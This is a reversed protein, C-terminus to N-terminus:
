HVVFPIRQWEAQWVGDYLVDMLVNLHGAPDSELDVVAGRQVSTLAEGHWYGLVTGSEDLRVVLPQGALEGGAYLSGDSARALAAFSAGLLDNQPMWTGSGAFGSDVVGAPTLRTLSVDTLALSAGSPLLILDVPMGSLSVPTFDNASHFLVTDDPIDNAMVLQNGTTRIDVVKRIQAESYTGPISVNAPPIPNAEFGSNWGVLRVQGPSATGTDTQAAWNLTGYQSVSLQQLDSGNSSQIGSFSAVSATNSALLDTMRFSEITLDAPVQVGDGFGITGVLLEGTESLHLDRVDAIGVISLAGVEEGVQLQQGDAGFGSRNVGSVDLGWTVSRPPDMGAGPTWNTLLANSNQSVTLSRAYDGETSGIWANSVSDDPAGNIGLASVTVGYLPNDSIVRLQGSAWAIGAFDNVPGVPWPAPAYGFNGWSTDLQGTDDLRVISAGYLTGPTNLAVYVDGTGPDRALLSLKESDSQNSVPSSYGAFSVSGNNGWSADVSGTYTVADIQVPAGGGDAESYILLRTGDNIIALADRNSGSLYAGMSGFGTDAGAGNSDYASLSYTTSDNHLLYVGGGPRALLDMRGSTPLEQTTQWTGGAYEYLDRGFQSQDAVLFIHGNDDEALALPPGYAPSPVPETGYSSGFATDLDGNTDLRGVVPYGFDDGTFLVQGGPQELLQYVTADPLSTEAQYFLERNDGLDWSEGGIMRDIRRFEQNSAAIFLDTSGSIGQVTPAAASGTGAERVVPGCSSSFHSYEAHGSVALRNFQYGDVTPYYVSLSRSGVFVAKVAKDDIGAPYSHLQRTGNSGFGTVLNGSEDYRRVLVRNQDGDTYAIFVGGGPAATMALPEHSEGAAPTALIPMGRAVIYGTGDVSVRLLILSTTDNTATTRVESAFIWLEGNDTTLTDLVQANALITSGQGFEVTGSSGFGTDLTATSARDGEDALVRLVKLTEGENISLGIVYASGDPGDVIAETRFENELSEGSLLSGLSVLNDGITFGNILDTIDHRTVSAQFEEEQLTWASSGLWLTEAGALTVASYETDDSLLSGLTDYILSGAENYTDFQVLFPQVVPTFLIDAEFSGVVLIKDGVRQVDLIRYNTEGSGPSVSLQGSTGFTTDASGDSNLRRLVTQDGNQSVTYSYGDHGNLLADAPVATGNTDSYPTFGSVVQVPFPGIADIVEGDSVLNVAAQHNGATPSTFTLMTGSVSLGLAPDTKATDIELTPTSNGDNLISLPWNVTEGAILTAPLIGCVQPVAVAINNLSITATATVSQAGNDLVYDFELYDTAIDTLSFSGDANLVLSELGSSQVISGTVSPSSVTTDNALVGSAAGISISASEDILLDYSDNVATMPALVTIASISYLSLDLQGNFESTNGAADTQRTLVDSEQWTGEPLVFQTGTGNQWTSGADLSYEWSALSEIDQLGVTGDITVTDDSGTNNSLTAYPSVPPTVDVEIPGTLGANGISSVNGALDTQRALIDAAAYVGESLTIGSGSGTEWIGGGDTSYEWDADQELGSISVQTANTFGSQVPFSLTPADPATADVLISANLVGVTSENGVEDIQLVQVDGYGFSGESLEFTAGTGPQWTSGGDTTFEWTTGNELGGVTITGDSTIGDSGSAGTDNSLTLTPEGPISTKIRLDSQATAASGFATTVTVSVDNPRVELENSYPMPWESSWTFQWDGTNPDWVVSGGIGPLSPSDALTVSVTENFLDFENSGPDNIVLQLTDVAEAPGQYTLTGTVSFGMQANADVILDEATIVPIESNITMMRILTQTNGALDEASLDLTFEGDPLSASEAALDFAFPGSDNLERTFVEIPNSGTDLITLTLDVAEYVSGSIVPSGTSVLLPDAGDLQLQPPQTDVTYARSTQVSGTNGVVDTANVVATVQTDMELAAFPVDISFTGNQTVSGTYTDTYVTLSVTDGPTVDGSAQGTLTITNGMDSQNLYDDGGIPDLLLTVSNADPVSTKARVTAFATGEVGTYSNFTVTLGEALEAYQNAVPLDTWNEPPVYMWENTDTNWHLRYAPDPSSSNDFRSVTVTDDLLTVGPDTPDRLEVTAGIVNSATGDYTLTGDILLDQPTLAADITLDNVTPVPAMTSIDITETHESINGAIDEARFRLTFNGDSLSSGPTITWSGNVPNGSATWISVPAQQEVTVSVFSPESVTGSLSGLSDVAAPLGDVTLGPATLDITAADLATPESSLGQVIQRVQVQNQVYTGEPLVFTIGSGASWTDGIDTSYEWEAGDALNSVQISSDATIRDSTSFGTDENLDVTLPAPKALSVDFVETREIGFRDTASVNIQVPGVPQENFTIHWEYGSFWFYEGDGAPPGDGGEGTSGEGEPLLTQELQSLPSIEVLADVPEADADTVQITIDREATSASLPREFTGQIVGSVGDPIQDIVLETPNPFVVPPTLLPESATVLGSADSGFVQAILYDFDLSELTVSTDTLRGAVQPAMFGGEESEIVASFPYYHVAYTLDPSGSEGASASWELNVERPGPSSGFLELSQVDLTVPILDLAVDDVIQLSLSDEAAVFLYFTQEGPETLGLSQPSLGSVWAEIEVPGQGDAGLNSCDPDCLAFSPAGSSESAALYLQQIPSDSSISFRFRLNGTVQTGTAPYAFAGSVGNGDEISRPGAPLSAIRASLQLPRNDTSQGTVGENPADASETNCGVLALALFATILPRCTCAWITRM